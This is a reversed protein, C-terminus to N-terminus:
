PVNGPPSVGPPSFPKYSFDGGEGRSMDEAEGSDHQQQQQERAVPAGTKGSIPPEPFPPPGGASAQHPQADQQQHQQHPKASGAAKRTIDRLITDITSVVAEDVSMPVMVPGGSVKVGEVTAGHHKLFNVVDGSVRRGLAAHKWQVYLMGSSTLAAGCLVAMAVHEWKLHFGGGSKGPAVGPAVVTPPAIGLSEAMKHENTEFNPTQLIEFM